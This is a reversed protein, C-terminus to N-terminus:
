PSKDVDQQYHGQDHNDQTENLAFISASFFTFDLWADEVVETEDSSYVHSETRQSAAEM